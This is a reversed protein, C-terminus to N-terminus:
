EDSEVGLQPIRLESSRPWQSSAHFPEQSQQRLDAQSIRLESSRPWRSGSSPYSVEPAPANNESGINSDADNEYVASTTSASGSAVTPNRIVTHRQGTPDYANYMIRRGAAAEERGQRVTTATSISGASSSASSQRVQNAPRLHPPLNSATNSPAIKSSESVSEERISLREFQAQASRLHPPLMSTAHSSTASMTEGAISSTESEIPRSASTQVYRSTQGVVQNFARHISETPNVFGLAQPGSIPAQPRNCEEFFERTDTPPRYPERRREEVSVHGTPLPDPVLSPEQMTDWAICTLCRWDENRRANNSFMTFPLVQGCGGECLHEPGSVQSHEMCVMGTRGPNATQHISKQQTKSFMSLPKWEGGAACRYQTMASLTSPRAIGVPEVPEGKPELPSKRRRPM